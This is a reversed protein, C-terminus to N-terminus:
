MAAITWRGQVEEADPEPVGKVTADEVTDMADDVGESEQAEEASASGATTPQMEFVMTELDHFLLETALYSRRGHAHTSFSRGSLTAVASLAGAERIHLIVRASFISHLVRQTSPTPPRSTLPSATTQSM